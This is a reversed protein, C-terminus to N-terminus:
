GEAAANWFVGPQAAVSPQRRGCVRSRVTRRGGARAVGCWRLCEHVSPIRPDARALVCSLMRPEAQAALNRAVLVIRFCDRRGIEDVCGLWDFYDFGDAKLGEVATLWERSAVEIM